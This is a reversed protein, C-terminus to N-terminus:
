SGFWMLCTCRVCWGLECEYMGCHFVVGPSRLIDCVHLLGAPRLTM